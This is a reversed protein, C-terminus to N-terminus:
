ELRLVREFLPVRCATRLLLAWVAVVVAILLYDVGRLPTLECFTRESPTVSIAGFSVLTRLDLISPRSDGSLDDGGGWSETPPEVFPILALGCLACAAGDGNGM